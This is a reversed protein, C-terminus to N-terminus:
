AAPDWERPKRDLARLWFHEGEQVHNFRKLIQRPHPDRVTAGVKEIAEKLGMQRMQPEEVSEMRYGWEKFRRTAYRCSEIGHDFTTNFVLFVSLCRANELFVGGSQKYGGEHI